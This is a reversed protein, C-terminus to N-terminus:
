PAVAYNNLGSLVQIITVEIKKNSCSELFPLVFVQICYEKQSSPFEFLKCTM